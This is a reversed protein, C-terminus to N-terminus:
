PLFVCLEKVPCCGSLQESVGMSAVYTTGALPEKTCAFQQITCLVAKGSVSDGSCWEFDRFSQADLLDLSCLLVKNSSRGVRYIDDAEVADLKMGAVAVEKVLKQM